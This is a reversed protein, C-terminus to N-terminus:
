YECQVTLTVPRTVPEGTLTLCEYTGAQQRTLAALVLRPSRHLAVGDALRGGRRRWGLEPRPSFWVIVTCNLGYVIPVWRGAALSCELVAQEGEAVTLATDPKTLLVPHVRIQLSHSM